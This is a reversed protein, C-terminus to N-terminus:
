VMIDRGPEIDKFGDTGRSADQKEFRFVETNVIRHLCIDVITTSNPQLAKHLFDSSAELRCPLYHIFGAEPRPKIILGFKNMAKIEQRIPEAGAKLAPAGAIVDYNLYYTIVSRNVLNCQRDGFFGTPLADPDNEGATLVLDFHNLSLGESDAIRFMIMCYRDHIYVKKHLAQQVIELRSDHQAAKTEKEFEEFLDKYEAAGSVSICKFIAEITEAGKGNLEGGISKMIGMESNSHATQKLVRLPVGPGTEFRTIKLEPAQLRGNLLTPTEQQLVMYRSNLNASAVRIVGDSGPEGTYSNVHDYLKRDIDQGTLVFPFIGNDHIHQAGQSIWEKNLSVSADSGLELWDLINQGPEVGDLWSKIRSLKSKGLQALASGHNAPALMILHKMPCTTNQGMYYNQWWTRVLPGGTSHTICVFRSGDGPTIVQERLATELARSIDDLRVEDNFTIYRALFINEVRAQYGRGSAELILRNPLEGYTDLNSVSYGHVFVFLLSQM